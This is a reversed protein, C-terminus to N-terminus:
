PAVERAIGSATGNWLLVRDRSHAVSDTGIGAAATLALNYMERATVYHYHFSPDDKARRALAAHFAIMPEGLLMARNAETAGHTHLKVFFWDPRRAVQVRARLWLELRQITPPQNGQLCANEVSPIIGLRRRNWNLLLPGQIMLLARPPPPAGNGADVGGDHSRPRHPDDVAYYISNIKRTQTPSPASPLTFDAYCGTERLIDLEDNVGCHRGDPRANDLAWNGHVFGYAINGTARDRALLQHQQALIQRYETMRRRLNASNDGDHHLHIEVEGFGQRCLQALAQVERSDYAEMPYFFTHRPAFGDSDTFQGLAAPYKETWYRVRQQAIDDSANATRPEFHDAICLLLHTEQGAPRPTARRCTQQCYAPLWRDAGMARLKTGIAMAIAASALLIATTIALLAM